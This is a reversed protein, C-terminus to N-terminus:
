PRVWLHKGNPLQHYRYKRAQAYQALPEELDEDEFGLFLARPPRANLVTEIDDITFIRQVRREDPSLLGGVRYAFPGTALEPYISLGAELPFLPALTV